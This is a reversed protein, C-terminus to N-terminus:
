LKLRKFVAEPLAKIVAMILRWYGPLYAVDKKKDVARV